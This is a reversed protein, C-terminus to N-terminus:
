SIYVNTCLMEKRTSSMSMSAKAPRSPSHLRMMCPFDGNASALLVRDFIFYEAYCNGFHLRTGTGTGGGLFFPSGRTRVWSPLRRQIAMREWGQSISVKADDYISFQSPSHYKEFLQTARASRNKWLIFHTDGLSIVDAGLDQILAHSPQVDLVGIARETRVHVLPWLLVFVAGLTILM